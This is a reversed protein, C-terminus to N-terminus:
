PIIPVRRTANMNITTSVLGPILPKFPLTVVVTKYEVSTKPDPTKAGITVNPLLNESSFAAIIEDKLSQDSIAPKTLATRAARDVGYSMRNYLYLARGFEIIGFIFVIMAMSIFAFEVAM